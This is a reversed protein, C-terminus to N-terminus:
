CGQFYATIYDSLDDTNVLCDSNFDARLGNPGGCGAAAYGGPGVPTPVSFYDTIYDSLDDTNLTGDRNYDALCSPGFIQGLRNLAALADVAGFGYVTDRGPEGLDLASDEMAQRLLAPPVRTPLYRGVLLGAVGAVHPTAMSTGSYSAYIYDVISPPVISGQVGSIAQLTDGTTQNVSVVPIAFTGSVNLTGSFPAGSGGTNNAIIVGIAGANLANNAKTNFTIAPQGSPAGRRILAIRGNVSAPFDAATGGFGCFIIQGSAGTSPSGTMAGALASNNGAWTVQAEIDPITSQVGVGPASLDIYSGVQGFGAVTNTSDVAQVAVVNDYAAPYSPSASPGGNGAAAVVLVGANFAATYVDQGSQSPAGGGLSMSIVHAGNAVAWDVGGLVSTDSGSGSNGLVKGVLLTASPAVGVVGINNDLALITGACHTGHTHLDLVAQGSIFSAQAAPTPLDPHPAFGTDLVAVRAGQGRSNSGGLAWFAPADVQGIGYPQSQALAVRIPDKEAYMVAPSKAYSAVAADVGGLPVRVGMLGPVLRSEYVTEMAGAAAHAQAIQGATAGARFRVLVREAHYAQVAEDVFVGLATADPKPAANGRTVVDDAIAAASLATLAAALGVAASLTRASLASSRNLQQSQHM